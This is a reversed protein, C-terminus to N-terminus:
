VGVPALSSAVFRGIFMGSFASATTANLPTASIHEFPLLSTTLQSSKPSMADEKADEISAAM